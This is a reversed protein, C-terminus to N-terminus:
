SARVPISIETLFKETDNTIGYDIVTIERSFGAASLRHERIYSMLRGYQEPAQPHSGRFRVRVCLTEPLKMVAGTFHDADDLVLFIGDYRTFRGATLHEAAISVGVKGLFVVAEAQAEVLRSTPLEMDQYDQIELPEEVWFLRCAPTHLLEIRNLVSSQADQLQRLRTDIKREIQALERQKKIVAAKQARLKEEIKDVDRNQLFDAIEHLPLGLARLYRITNFAEFQRPSYYRYGTDPDVREPTLLGLAEYHRISSVSLHFLRAMDGIQFLREMGM